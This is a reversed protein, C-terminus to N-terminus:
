PCWVLWVRQPPNFIVGDFAAAVVAFTCWTVWCRRLSRDILLRWLPHSSEVITPWGRLASLAFNRACMAFVILVSFIFLATTLPGTRGVHFPLPADSPFNGIPWTWALWSIEVYTDYGYYVSWVPVLLGVAVWLVLFVSSYLCAALLGFFVTNRYRRLVLLLALSTPFVYLAWVSVDSSM